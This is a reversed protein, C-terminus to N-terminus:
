RWTLPTSLEMYAISNKIGPYRIEVLHLLMDMAKEKFELYEDGRKGTMTNHWKKMLEFPMPSLVVLSKAFGNTSAPAPTNLMYSVPWEKTSDGTWVDDLRHYYYNHKLYPFAEEKLVAHIACSAITNKLTSIRQIYNKRFLRPDM